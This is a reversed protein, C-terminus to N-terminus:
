VDWWIGFKGTKDGGGLEDKEGLPDLPIVLDCDDRRGLKPLAILRDELEPTLPTVNVKQSGSSIRKFLPQSLM